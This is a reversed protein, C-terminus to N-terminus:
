HRHCELVQKIHFKIVWICCEGESNLVIGKPTDNFRAVKGEKTTAPVFSFGELEVRATDREKNYGVALDLYRLNLKPLYPYVGYNWVCLDVEMNNPDDVLDPNVAPLGDPELELYKKFTTNKIERDETKKTGEIIQDFYTQKITLYLTNDKTPEEEGVLYYYNEEGNYRVGPENDDEEEVPQLDEEAQDEESELNQNYYDLIKQMDILSRTDESLLEVLDLPLVEQIYVEDNELLHDNLESKLDKNAETLAADAFRDYVRGPIDVLEGSYHEDRIFTEVEKLNKETLKAVAVGEFIVEGNRVVDYDFEINQM